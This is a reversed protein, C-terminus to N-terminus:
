HGGGPKRAGIPSPDTQLLFDQPADPVSYDYPWRHVEPIEGPWNGHGPPSPTTWELGAANWPNGEAKQGKFASWIANIFFLVQSAGLILANYTIFANIDQVEKLFDYEYPNYIRRMQGSIGVYHM